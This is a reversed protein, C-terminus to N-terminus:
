RGYIMIRSNIAFNRSEGLPPNTYIGISKIKTGISSLNNLTGYFSDTIMSEYYAQKPINTTDLSLGTYIKGVSSIYEITSGINKMHISIRCWADTIKLVDATILYAGKSDGSKLQNIKTVFNTASTSKTEFVVDIESYEKDFNLFFSSIEETLITDTILEWEASTTSTSDSSGSGTPADIWQVDNDADSTKALVQGTSGGIPVTKPEINSISTNFTETTVYGSLDVNAGALNAIEQKDSDTLVYDTGNTGAPGQEGQIGQPGQEGQVGQDGKDGKEGKLSALQEATFDEYTFPDGKDGKQGPEGKEGQIGQEGQPGQLGTEGIDGKDGKLAALQEETFDEYVFRVRGLNMKAM